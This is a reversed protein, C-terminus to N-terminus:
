LTDTTHEVLPRFERVHAGVGVRPGHMIEGPVPHDLPPGACLFDHRVERRRPRGQGPVLSGSLANSAPGTARSVAGVPDDAGPEEMVLVVMAMMMVLVVVVVPMLVLVLMMIVSVVMMVM